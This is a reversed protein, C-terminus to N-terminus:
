ENRRFENRVELLLEIVKPFQKILDAHVAELDSPNKMREDINLAHAVQNLNGGIRSLDLRTQELAAVLRSIDADPAPIGKGLYERLARRVIVSAKVDERKARNDLLESLAGLRFTRKPNDQKVM